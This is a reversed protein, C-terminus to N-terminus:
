AHNLAMKLSPTSKACFICKKLKIRRQVAGLTSGIRRCFKTLLFMQFLSHRFKVVHACFVIRHVGIQRQAVEAMAVNAYQMVKVM